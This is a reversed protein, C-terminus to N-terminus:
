YRPQIGAASMAAEVTAKQGANVANIYTLLRANVHGPGRVDAVARQDGTSIPRAGYLTGAWNQSGDAAGPALPVYKGTATVKGLQTGAPLAVATAALTIQESNQNPDWQGLRYLGDGGGEPYVVKQVGDPM